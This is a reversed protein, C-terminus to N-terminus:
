SQSQYDQNFKSSKKGPNVSVPIHRIHVRRDAGVRAAGCEFDAELSGDRPVVHFLRRDGSPLDLDQPLTRFESQTVTSALSPRM